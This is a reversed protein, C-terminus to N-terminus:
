AAYPVTGNGAALARGRMHAVLATTQQLVAIDTLLPHDHTEPTSAADVTAAGLNVYEGRRAELNDPNAPAASPASNVARETLKLLYRQHDPTGYAAEDEHTPTTHYDNHRPTYM